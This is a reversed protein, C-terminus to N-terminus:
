LEIFSADLIRQEKRLDSVEGRLYQEILLSAIPAAWTGGFGSYEVYVSIAIKPNEKPAFAIFVSHDPLPENQVTGTKGCVTIGDIRARSATGGTQSVVKEMANVVTEYHEPAVGSDVKENFIAPKGDNEISRIIHPRFYHGRNAIIAALNAMQLPNILLEGEGISISYITSYAWRLEGYIKNYYSPSPVNGSKVGPIDTELNSGFGFKKIRETWEELGLAADKFRNSEKRREVVRRMVDRFYPNCSHIIAGELDDYSHSGHCGIISRNCHIRTAPTIEGMELAVLSQVMKWISGPRYLGQTARNYLPKLPDQQLLGYNKGRQGGVLLNPDYAPASVLALIEGSEPEIAVISGLKNKMLKEAYAQLKADLTLTLDKGQVAATDYRGEALSEQINNRVDVLVYRAGIKGRLEREYTLEVGSKGIYDGQRYYRDKTLDDRSVEAYDGLVHAGIGKRYSRVTRAQGFFGPFEHLSENLRAYVEPDIQKRIVSPKYRSYNQAKNLANVLDDYEIEALSCLKLTDFPQVKRPVAMLDYIARNAVLLEGNRDYILGRSPYIRLKDETLEAAKARWRDSSVQLSFLRIVFIAGFMLFIGSIVYRRSSLNM